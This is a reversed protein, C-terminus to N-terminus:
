NIGRRYPANQYVLYPTSPLLPSKDPTKTSGPFEYYYWTDGIVGTPKLVNPWSQHIPFGDSGNILMNREVVYVTGAQPASIDKFSWPLWLALGYYYPDDQGACALKVNTWHRKKSVQGLRKIDQNLDYYHSDLLKIKQDPLVLDNVYGIQNSFYFATSIAHWLALFVVLWRISRRKFTNGMQWFWEAGKAAILIVAPYAPLAYRLYILPLFQLFSIWALPFFWLWVPLKIRGMTWGVMGALFLATFPVTSKLIFIIPFQWWRQVSYVQDWFYFSTPQISQFRNSLLLGNKIRLYFYYFPNFHDSLKITGPLFVFFVATGFGLLGFIYRRSWQFVDWNDKRFAWLDLGLYIPLLFLGSLKATIALGASFGTLWDWKRRRERQGRLFFLVSLVCLFNFAPDSKSITSFALLNPEFTWLLLSSLFVIGSELRVLLYILFGTGISFLLTVIRPLILMWNLQGLNAVYYFAYARNEDDTWIHPITKLHIFLLPFANLGVALPPLNFSSVVDGKLWYYYGSTTEWVEDTIPSDRWIRPLVQISFLTAAFLFWIIRHKKDFFYSSWNSLINITKKLFKEVVRLM